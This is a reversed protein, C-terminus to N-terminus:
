TVYNKRGRWLRGRRRRRGYVDYVMEDIEAELSTTDASPDNFNWRGMENKVIFKLFAANLAKKPVVRNLKIAM